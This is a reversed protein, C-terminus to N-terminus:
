PGALGSRGGQVLLPCEEGALNRGPSLFLTEAFTEENPSTTMRVGIEYGVDPGDPVIPGPGDVFVVKPSIYDGRLPRLDHDPHTFADRGAPSILRALDDEADHTRLLMFREAVSRADGRDSADARAMGACTFSGNPVYALMVTDYTRGPTESLESSHGVVLFADGTPIPQLAWGALGPLSVDHWQDESAAYVAMSGCFNGLVYGEIAVSNPGCEYFRLPVDDLPRWADTLPDYAASGHEYDWAILEGGPWAAAHAQPSLESPALRRWTDTQPDYAVGIATDTEPFNGGNLAAGFTLMEIGTWVATGDTLDVPGDAITRWSDTAPDYAAGDRLRLSRDDNGWVILERGTWVSFPARAEIPAPPLRRWAGTIPNFAAGDDFFGEGTPLDSDGTMGGWILLEQGTWGFGADSRAELPSDPITRWAQEAADYLYGVDSVYDNGGGGGWLILHSGTWAYAPDFRMEPPPPLESWGAPLDAAVVMRPNYAFMRRETGGPPEDYLNSPVLVVEGVAVPEHVWCCGDETDPVPMPERHWAGEQPSFVVTGGCFEGFVTESTAVTVPRCESFRLPVDPLSEWVNAVPDYAASAQDYDWAILEGNLWEATMAQPSLDSAPPERWTDTDPDYAAAIATPTDAHNNSDLAAGFVIMEDGTWVASGDTIDIPGDAIPRWANTIPDYAAGDLRRAARERSGWVIMEKGTWVSFATRAGIPATPLMRWTGAVPDFAAGDGFYPPDRFGGDWGGWILLERGTWGFAMDSRGELPSAPLQSWTRTQADFAFGGADPDENGGVYEYGGWVLLESGTWATAAGSRVEPPAPLESWGEPLEAALDVVAPSPDPGLDPDPHSLDWAFVAATAFVALAVVAAAIRRGAAPRGDVARSPTEPAAARRRAEGWLDKTDIEDALSFREKLDSM